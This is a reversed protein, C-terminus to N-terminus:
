IYSFVSIKPYDKKKNYKLHLEKLIKRSEQSLLDEPSLNILTGTPIMDGVRIEHVGLEKGLKFLNEMDGNRLNENTAVTAIM